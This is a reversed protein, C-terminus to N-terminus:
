IPCFTAFKLYIMEEYKTSNTNFKRSLFVDQMEGKSLKVVANSVVNAVDKGLFVLESFAKSYFIDGVMIAVKNGELTNISIKGRRTDANDIVDDHLLSAFHIMEIIAALKTINDKNKGITMALKARIRKGAAQSRYLKTVRKEDIEQLFSNIIYDIKEM